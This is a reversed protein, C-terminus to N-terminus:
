LRNINDDVAKNKYKSDKIGGISYKLGIVIEKVDLYYVGRSSINNITFDEKANKTSLLSNYTVTCSLKKFFTKSVSFDVAYMANRKFIGEVRKTNAWGSIMLSYDKPLTVQNNSYFYLYPTAKNLVSLPDKIRNWIGTLVNTSTLIKFKFPITLALNVGTELEYNTNVMRLRNLQEDYNIAYYVPNKVKYYSVALSSQKFQYTASVEDKKTPDININNAWEFFPNIYTTIQSAAAYNPRSISKAYNFAFSHNEDIAVSMEAKPFFDIYDKKIGLITNDGAGRVRTSEARLGAAYTVKEAKGSLQTYGAYIQEAYNFDTHTSNNPDYTQMELFSNSHASSIALGSEWKTRKGSLQEYDVRGSLVEVTYGQARDQTLVTQTDNFNNYINSNLDQAGKSYQGGVFIQGNLDKLKKNYNISSNFLPRTNSNRNDTYVNDEADAAKIYSNASNIFDSDQWRNTVNFSLYDDTDIQYYLGGGVILQKRLGVSLVKYDSVIGKDIIRFDNSNSEWLNLHNYQINSRLELKEKKYILNLGSRNHFFRKFSAAETAVANFGETKNKNRTILLVTRGEAEYKVSPNNIIEISKIDSTSLSNLENLTIKQHDLYILPEGRGIINIKEGDPSLQISPFKTLMSIPDAIKSLITNEIEIKLNGLHNSFVKKSATIQVEKLAQPDDKLQIIVTENQLLDLRTTGEYFGPSSVKVLYAGAEIGVFSFRGEALNAYKVLASDKASILQVDGSSLITGNLSTVKGAVSYKVQCYGSCSWTILGIILYFKLRSCEVLDSIIKFM